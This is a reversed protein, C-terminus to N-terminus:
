ERACGADRDTQDKLLTSSLQSVSVPHDWWRLRKGLEVTRPSVHPARPIAGTSWSSKCGTCRARKGSRPFSGRDPSLDAKTLVLVPRVGVERALVLIANSGRLMLIRTAPHSSSFHRSTQRSLNSGVTTARLRGRSCAPGISFACSTGATGDILLWDGVTPRDEPGKPVPVSSSISEELGDGVVSVMGRHVSM